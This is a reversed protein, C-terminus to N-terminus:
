SSTYLTTAYPVYRWTNKGSIEIIDFCYPCQFPQGDIASAPPEPILLPWEDGGAFSSQGFFTETHITPSMNELRMGARDVYTSAKTDAISPEPGPGDVAEAEMAENLPYKNYVELPDSEPVNQTIKDRALKEHHSKRYHLWKRRQANAKGLKRALRERERLLPFAEYIHAVEFEIEQDTPVPIRELKNRQSSKHIHISLRMLSMISEDILLCLENSETIVKDDDEEPNNNWFDSAGDDSDNDDSDSFQDLSVRSSAASWTEQPRVGKVLSLV